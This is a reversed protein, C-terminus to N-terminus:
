HKPMIKFSDLIVRILPMLDDLEDVIKRAEDCRLRGSKKLLDLSGGHHKRGKKPKIAVALAEVIPFLDRPRISKALLGLKWQYAALLNKTSEKLDESELLRKIIAAPLSMFQTDNSQAADADSTGKVKSRQHVADQLIQLDNELEKGVWEDVHSKLTSWDLDGADSDRYLVTMRNNEGKGIAAREFAAFYPMDSFSPPKNGNDRAFWGHDTRWREMDRRWWLEQSLEENIRLRMCFPSIPQFIHVVSSGESDMAKPVLGLTDVIPHSPYKHIRISLPSIKIEDVEIISFIERTAKIYAQYCARSPFEADRFQKLYIINLPQRQTLIELSLAKAIELSTRKETKVHKLRDIEASIRLGWSDSITRWRIRSGDQEVADKQDIEILTRMEGRQGVNLAPFVETKLELFSRCGPPFPGGATLWADPPSAIDARLTPRGNIERDTAVARGTSGYAFPCVLALTLLELRRGNQKNRRYMKVPINFSVDKDAWWGINNSESWMTGYQANISTVIMYVYSGFPRVIMEGTEEPKGTKGQNLPDNIFRNLFKVLTSREALLPYVQFTADPFRFPGSVPQVGAGQLENYAPKGIKEGKDSPIDKDFGENIWIRQVEQTQRQRENKSSTCSCLVRGKGYFLDTDTWFPFTPKLLAVEVDGYGEETAAVELGLAEVIPWTTHRYLRITFGGSPDGRLLYLDGLLGCANLRNIGMPSSVLAQYCADAPQSAHRFQKVTIQEVSFQRWGRLRNNVDNEDSDDNNKFPFLFNPLVSPMNEGAKGLMRLIMEPTRDSGYGRIPLGFFLDAAEQTLRLWGQAANSVIEIPNWPNSPDPPFESFIPRPALDIKILDRNEEKTGAYLRPFVPTQLVFLRSPTRPDQSWLDRQTAISSTTKPWGYVERGTTLSVEDDVFIFPSTFAWNQFTLRGDRKQWQELPVTFTVEHQSVWGTNRARIAAPSMSGYNLVMMYVYPIAPRFHVMREPIDMNLYLKCFRVLRAMNAKIPFVRCTVNEFLFPPGSTADFSYADIADLRDKVRTRPPDICDGAYIDIYPPKDKLM